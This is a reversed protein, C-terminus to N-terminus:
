RASHIRSGESSLARAAQYSPGRPARVGLRRATGAERDRRPMM